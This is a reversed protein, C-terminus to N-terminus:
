ERGTPVISIDYDLEKPAACSKQTLRTYHLHSNTPKLAALSPVYISFSSYSDVTLLSPLLRSPPRLCILPYFPRKYPNPHSGTWTKKLLENTTQNIASLYIHCGCLGLIFWMGLVTYVLVTWTPVVQSYEKRLGALGKSEAVDVLQAICVSLILCSQITSSVLFGLFFGYNRAGICNGLWPCHHDFREVCCDCISCHSARPPRYIRGLHSKCTDCYRLKVLSGRINVDQGKGSFELLQNGLISVNKPGSSSGETQRPLVGPNATATLVLFLLSTCTGILILVMPAATISLLYRCPFALTVVCPVLLLLFTLLSRLFDPGVVARGHCLRRNDGLRVKYSPLM